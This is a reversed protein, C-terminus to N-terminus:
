ARDLCRGPEIERGPTASERVQPRVGFRLLILRRRKAVFNSQGWSTRAIECPLSSCRVIALLVLDATLATTLVGLLTTVAEDTEAADLVADVLMVGPLLAPVPVTFGGDPKRAFRIAM